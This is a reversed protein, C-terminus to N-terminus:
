FININNYNKFINDFMIGSISKLVSFFKQPRREFATKVRIEVYNGVFM